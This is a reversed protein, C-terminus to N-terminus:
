RLIGIANTSSLAGKLAEIALLQHINSGAEPGKILSRTFRHSIIYLAYGLRRNFWHLNIQLSTNRVHSSSCWSLELQQRHRYSIELAIKAMNRICGHIWQDLVPGLTIHDCCVNASEGGRQDVPWAAGGTVSQSSTANQPVFHSLFFM